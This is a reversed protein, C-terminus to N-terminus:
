VSIEPELARAISVATLDDATFGLGGTSFIVEPQRDLAGRLEEAISDPDDRIIVARRLQRGLGTVQRILWHANTDGPRGGPCAACGRHPARQRDLPDRRYGDKRSQIRISGEAVRM